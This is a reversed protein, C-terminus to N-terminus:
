GPPALSGMRAAAAAAAANHHGTWPPRVVPRGEVATAKTVRAAPAKVARALMAQAAHKAQPAFSGLPLVHQALPPVCRLCFVNGYNDACPRARRAV